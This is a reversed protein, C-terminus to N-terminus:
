AMLQLLKKQINLLKKMTLNSHYIKLEKAVKKMIRTRDSELGQLQHVLEDKKLIISELADISYEAICGWEERLLSIFKEYLLVKKEMTDSLHKLLSNM